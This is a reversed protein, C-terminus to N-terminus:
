YTYRAAIQMKWRSPDVVVTKLNPLVAVGNLVAITYRPRNNAADWGSTSLLGRKVEANSSERVLGWNKNLMNPINFLDAYLEVKRAGMSFEKTLRGDLVAVAPNRCSNRTM